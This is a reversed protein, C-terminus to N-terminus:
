WTVNGFEVPMAEYRWMPHPIRQLRMCGDCEYRLTHQVGFLCAECLNAHFRVEVIVRVQAWWSCTRLEHSPKVLRARWADSVRQTPHM